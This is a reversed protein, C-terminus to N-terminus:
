RARGAVFRFRPDPGIFPLSAFLVRDIMWHLQFIAVVVHQPLIRLLVLNVTPFLVASLPTSFLCNPSLLVIYRESAEKWCEHLLNTTNFFV